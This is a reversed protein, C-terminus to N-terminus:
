GKMWFRRVTHKGGHTQTYHVTGAQIHSKVCQLLSKGMSWSWQQIEEVPYKTYHISFLTMGEWALTCTLGKDEWKSKGYELFCCLKAHSQQHQKETYDQAVHDCVLNNLAYTVIPRNIAEAFWLCCPQKPHFALNDKDRAWSSISLQRTLM